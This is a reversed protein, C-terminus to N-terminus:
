LIKLCPPSAYLTTTSSRDGETTEPRTKFVHKKRAEKMKKIIVLIMMMKSDMMNGSTASRERSTPRKSFGAYSLVPHTNCETKVLMSSVIHSKHFGTYSLVSHTSAEAKIFVNSVVSSFELKQYPVYQGYINQVRM